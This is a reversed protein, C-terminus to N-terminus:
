MAVQCSCKTVHRMCPVTNYWVVVYWALRYNWLELEEDVNLAAPRVTNPKFM